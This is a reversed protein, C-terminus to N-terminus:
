ISKELLLFREILMRSATFSAPSDAELRQELLAALRDLEVILRKQGPSAVDLATALHRRLTALEGLAAPNQGIRVYTHVTSANVYAKRVEDRALTPNV